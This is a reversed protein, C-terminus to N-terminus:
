EEPWAGEGILPVFRCAGMSHVSFTDGTRTVKMLEQSNRSGVPIVLRGGSDLQDMLERPLKPAGAAVIIADYPAKTRWGLEKAAGVVEVNTYGMSKLRARAADALSPIRELTIVHGAIEAILAAQYGSGTGLELVTDSRRLELARLMLAVIFPQSVTQGEGIPLPIDEYALDLSEEPVFAERPVHEMAQIVRADPVEQKLRDIL